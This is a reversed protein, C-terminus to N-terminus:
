ESTAGLAQYASAKAETVPCPTIFPTVELAKPGLTVVVRPM